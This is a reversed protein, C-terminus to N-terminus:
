SLVNTEEAFKRLNYLHHIKSKQCIKCKRRELRIMKLDYMEDMFNESETRRRNRREHGGGGGRLWFFGSTSTDRVSYPTPGCVQVRRDPHYGGGTRQQQSLTAPSEM